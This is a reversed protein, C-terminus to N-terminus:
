SHATPYLGAQNIVKLSTNSFNGGQRNNVRKVTSTHDVEQSANFGADSKHDKKVTTQGEAINNIPSMRQEMIM